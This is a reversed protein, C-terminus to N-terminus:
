LLNALETLVNKNVIAPDIDFYYSPMGEDMGHAFDSLNGTFGYGM